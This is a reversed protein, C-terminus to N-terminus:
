RVTTTTSPSRRRRRHDALLFAAVPLHHILRTTRKRETTFCVAASCATTITLNPLATTPQNTIAHNKISEAAPPSIPLHGERQQHGASLLSPHHHNNDEKTVPSIPLHNIAPLSAPQAGRAQDITIASLRSPGQSTTSSCRHLAPRRPPPRTAYTLRRNITIFSSPIP